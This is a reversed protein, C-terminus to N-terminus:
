RSSGVTPRFSPSMKKKLLGSAPEVCAGSINVAIGTKWSPSSTAHASTPPCWPSQPDTEGPPNLGYAVLRKSSPKWMAPTFIPSFNRM